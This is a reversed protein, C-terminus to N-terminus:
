FGSQTAAPSLWLQCKAQSQELSYEPIARQRFDLAGRVITPRTDALDCLYSALPFGQRNLVILQHGYQSAFTGFHNAVAYRESYTYRSWIDSRVILNVQRQGLTNEPYVLWNVVLKQGYQRDTWWLSPVTLGKQSPTLATAIPSTPRTLLLKAVAPPPTTLSPQSRVEWPMGLAVMLSLLGLKLKHVRGM